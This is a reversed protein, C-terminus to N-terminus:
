PAIQLGAKRGGGYPFTSSDVPALIRVDNLYFVISLISPLSIM